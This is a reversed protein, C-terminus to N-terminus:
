IWPPPEDSQQTPPPLEEPEQKGFAKMAAEAESRMDAKSIRHRPAARFEAPVDAGAVDETSRGRLKLIPRDWNRNRM